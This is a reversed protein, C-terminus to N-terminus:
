LESPFVVHVGGRSIIKHTLFFRIEVDDDV